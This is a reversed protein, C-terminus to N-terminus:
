LIKNQSIEGSLPSAWGEALVQLWQLSLKSIEVSKLTEAEKKKAALESEPVYLESIQPCCTCRTFFCLGM